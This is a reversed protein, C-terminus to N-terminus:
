DLMALATKWVQAKTHTPRLDILVSLLTKWQKTIASIREVTLCESKWIPKQALTAVSLLEQSREVPRNCAAIYDAPLSFVSGAGHEICATFVDSGLMEKAREEPTPYHM